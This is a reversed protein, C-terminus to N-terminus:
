HAHGRPWGCDAGGTQESTAEDNTGVRRPSCNVWLCTDMHLVGSIHVFTLRESQKVKIGSRGGVQMQVFRVPRVPVLSKGCLGM